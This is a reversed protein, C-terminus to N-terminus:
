DWLEGYDSWRPNEPDYKDKVVEALPKGLLYLNNRTEIVDGQRPKNRLQVGSTHIFSNDPFRRLKDHDLTGWFIVEKKTVQETYWCDLTGVLIKSM